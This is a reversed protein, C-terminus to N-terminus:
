GWLPLYHLLFDLGRCSIVKPYPHTRAKGEQQCARGPSGLSVMKCFLCHSMPHLCSPESTLPASWQAQSGSTSEWLIWITLSSVGVIPGRIHVLTVGFLYIYNFQKLDPFQSYLETISRKDLMHVVKLKIGLVLFLCCCVWLTFCQRSLLSNPPLNPDLSLDWPRKRGPCCSLVPQHWWVSPEAQASVLSAEPKPLVHPSGPLALSM